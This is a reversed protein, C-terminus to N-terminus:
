KLHMLLCRKNDLADRLKEYFCFMSFNNPCVPEHYLFHGSLFVQVVGHAFGVDLFGLERFLVLLQQDALGATDQNFFYRCASTIEKAARDGDTSSANLFVNLFSSHLKLMRDKKEDDKEIKRDFEQSALNNTEEIRENQRSIVETLQRLVDTSDSTSPQANELTNTYGMICDKHHQDSKKSTKADGARILFNTVGM